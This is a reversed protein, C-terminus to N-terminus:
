ICHFLRLNKLWKYKMTQVIFSSERSTTFSSKTDFSHDFQKTKVRCDAWQRLIKQFTKLRFNVYYNFRISTSSPFTAQSGKTSSIMPPRYNQCGRYNPFVFLTIIFSFNYTKWTWSWVSQATAMTVEEGKGVFILAHNSEADFDEKSAIWM